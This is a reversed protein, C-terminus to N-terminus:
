HWFPYGAHACQACCTSATAWTPALMPRRVRKLAHGGFVCETCLLLTRANMRPDLHCPPGTGYHLWVSQSVLPSHALYILLNLVLVSHPEGVSLQAHLAPLLRGRGALVAHAAVEAAHAVNTCAM